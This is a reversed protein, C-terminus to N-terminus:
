LLTDRSYYIVETVIHVPASGRARGSPAGGCRHRRVVLQRCSLVLRESYVTLTGRESMQASIENRQSLVSLKAGMSRCREIECMSGTQRQKSKLNENKEREKQDLEMARRQQEMEVRYNFEEGERQRQEFVGQANGAIKKQQAYVAEIAAM